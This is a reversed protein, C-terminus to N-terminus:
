ERPLLRPRLQGARRALLWLAVCIAASVLVNLLSDEPGFAGGSWLEAGHISTVLPARPMWELEGSLPLGAAFITANWCSHHAAAAWLNRTLLYVGAWILGALTVSFFTVFSVGANALHMAGFVAASFALAGHSGLREEAIRFLIGRFFIEELLAAVWIAGFVGFAPGIPEIAELRYFGAAFLLVITIGISLSGAAAALLIARWRPALETVPRKEYFRVFVAYAATAVLVLNLRRWFSAGAGGLGFASELLPDLLNRYLAVAAVLIGAALLLKLLGSSYFKLRHIKTM